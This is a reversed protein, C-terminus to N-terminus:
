RVNRFEVMVRVKVDFTLATGTVTSAMKIGFHQVNPSAVDLWPATENAYSVFTGSYAAVAVHPVFTHKHQKNGETVIAGPYDLLGNFSPTASDDLDVATVYQGPGYASGFETVQQYRPMITYEMLPVRYQDFIASFSTANDLSSMVFNYAAATPVSASTAFTFLPQTQIINYIKNLRSAADPSPFVLVGAKGKRQKKRRMARAPTFMGAVAHTLGAKAVALEERTLVPLSFLKKPAVPIKQEERSQSSFLNM